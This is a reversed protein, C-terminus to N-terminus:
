SRMSWKRQLMKTVNKAMISKKGEQVQSVEQAEVIYPTKIIDSLPQCKKPLTRIIPVQMARPPM